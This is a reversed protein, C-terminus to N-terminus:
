EEVMSKCEKLQWKTASVDFGMQLLQIIKRTIMELDAVTCFDYTARMVAPYSVEYDWRQDGGNYKRWRLYEGRNHIVIQLNCSGFLREEEPSKPTYYIHGDDDTVCKIPEGFFQM